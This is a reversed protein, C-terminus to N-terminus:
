SSRSSATELLFWKGHAYAILGQRKLAQQANRVMHKWRKGFHLGNIVREIDDDCIDPHIEQILPHLEPTSLPGNRLLYLITRSFIANTSDSPRARIQRLVEKTQILQQQFEKRLAERASKQILNQQGQLETSIRALEHLEALSVESGLSAYHRIDVSIKHVISPEEIWVGYEHNRWLGGNTLNSSTVIAVQNDVVYIKAHLNALHTVRSNPVKRCFELIASPNTLGEALNTPSFSTM